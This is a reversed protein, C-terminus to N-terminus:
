ATRILMKFFHGMKFVQQTVNQVGGLWIICVITGEANQIGQGILPKTVLQFFLITHM